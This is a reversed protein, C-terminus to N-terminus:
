KQYITFISGAEMWFLDTCYEANLGMIRGDLSPLKLFSKKSQLFDAQDVCM